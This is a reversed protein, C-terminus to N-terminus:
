SKGSLCPRTIWGRCGGAVGCGGAWRGMWWLVRARSRRQPQAGDQFLPTMKPGSASGGDSCLMGDYTEAVTGTGIFAHEAQEPSTFNSVMVLKPFIPDLCTLALFDVGDLKSLSSAYRRNYLSLCPCPPPSLSARTDSRRTSPPRALPM